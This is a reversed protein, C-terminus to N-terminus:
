TLNWEVEEPNWAMLGNPLQHQFQEPLEQVVPGIRPLSDLKLKVALANWDWTYINIGLWTGVKRLNKKLREDCMPMFASAISSGGGLLGQLGAQEANFADLEASYQNNAANMYQPTESKTAQSFSPMTPMGVQQGTLIANIENLSFGRRQMEESIQQQRITNDLGVGRVAQDYGQAGTRLQESLQQERNARSDAALAGSEDMMQSRLAQDLGQITSREGFSQARADNTIGARNMLEDTHQARQSDAYQGRSLDLGFQNAEAQNFFDGLQALEGTEVGRRTVDQGFLQAAEDRGANIAAFNAQQYADTRDRGFNEMATDYAEDGPRLGQNRLQSEIAEERQAFQPDLRSTASGYVADEAQQRLRTPDGIASAGSFDLSEQLAAQDPAEGFKKTSHTNVGTQLSPMDVTNARRVNIDSSQMRQLPDLNQGYEPVDPASRLEQFNSWDMVPGFEDTMRGMMDYALESRGTTVAQQADLARQSQDNLATNQTWQTVQQGTAPDIVVNTDWSIDGFPTVQNPRNAYTQMNTIEASAEGQKEAAAEYDPADPASKGGM